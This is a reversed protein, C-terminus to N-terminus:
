VTESEMIQDRYIRSCRVAEAPAEEAFLGVLLDASEAEDGTLRGPETWMSARAILEAQVPVACESPLMLRALSLMAILRNRDNEDGHSAAMRAFVLGEVLAAIDLLGILDPHLPAGAEDYFRVFASHALARQAELDGRAAAALTVFPNTQGGSM